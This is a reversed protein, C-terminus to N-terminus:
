TENERQCMITKIVDYDITTITVVVRSGVKYIFHFPFIPQVSAATIECLLITRNLFCSQKNHVM